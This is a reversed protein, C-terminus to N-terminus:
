GIKDIGVRKRKKKEKERGKAEARQNDVHIFREM